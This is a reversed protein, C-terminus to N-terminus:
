FKELCYKYKRHDGAAAGGHRWRRNPITMIGDMGEREDDAWFTKRCIKLIECGDNTIEMKCLEDNLDIGNGQTASSPLSPFGGFSGPSISYYSSPSSPVFEAAEPNPPTSSYSAASHFSQSLSSPFPLRPSSNAPPHYAAIHSWSAKQKLPVTKPPTPYFPLPKDEPIRTFALGVPSASSEPYKSLSSQISDLEQDDFSSFSTNSIPPSLPSDMDSFEFQLEADPDISICPITIDNQSSSSKNLDHHKSEINPVTDSNIKIQSQPMFSHKFTSNEWHAHDPLSSTLFTKDFSFSPQNPLSRQFGLSKVSPSTSNGILQPQATMINIDKNTNHKEPCTSTPTSTSISTSSPASISSSSTSKFQPSIHEKVTSILHHSAMPTDEHEEIIIEQIQQGHTRAVRERWGSKSNSLKWKPIKFNLNPERVKNNDHTLQSSANESTIPQQHHQHTDIGIKRGISKSNSTLHLHEKVSRKTDSVTCHDSQLTAQIIESITDNIAKIKTQPISCQAGTNALHLLYERPYVIRSDSPAPM